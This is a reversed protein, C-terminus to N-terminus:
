SPTQYTITSYPIRLNRGYALKGSHLNNVKLITTKNVNYKKCIKTLTDGKRVKHTKYGTSVISHLRSLNKKAIDATAEPIKVEYQHQISHRKGM